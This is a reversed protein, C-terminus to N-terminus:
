FLTKFAEFNLFIIIKWSKKVGTTFDMLPQAHEFFFLRSFFETHNEFFIIKKSTIKNKLINKWKCKKELRKVKEFIKMCM